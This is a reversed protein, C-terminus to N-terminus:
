ACQAPRWPASCCAPVAVLVLGGVLSGVFASAQVHDLAEVSIRLFPKAVFPVLALLRAACLVVHSLSTITPDREALSGGVWYGVSLAVLM